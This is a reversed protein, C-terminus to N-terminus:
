QKFDKEEEKKNEDSDDKFQNAKHISYNGNESDVQLEKLKSPTKELSCKPYDFIENVLLDLKNTRIIHQKSKPFIISNLNDSM